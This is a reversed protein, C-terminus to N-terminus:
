KIIKLPKWKINQMLLAFSIIMKKLM